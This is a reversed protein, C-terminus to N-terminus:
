LDHNGNTTNPPNMKGVSEGRNAKELSSQSRVLKSSKSVDPNQHEFSNSSKRGSDGAITELPLSVSSATITGENIKMSLSTRLPNSQDGDVVRLESNTTPTILSTSPLHEPTANVPTSVSASSSSQTSNWSHRTHPTQATQVKQSSPHEHITKLASPHCASSENRSSDISHSHQESHTMNQRMDVQFFKELRITYEHFLEINNHDGGEVWLPDLPNPLRAFLEKGHHVGIVHDDTGHIVLTPSQINEVKDISNFPDFCFRRTTGPCVVRLGSMLASHLVVGAVLHRTALDVTPATGISQGYLVIRNLPCHFREVLESLAAEADAYLNAELTQGTSAGYGSYDYVLVNVEFRQSLSFLFGAMQGIDVANGHSFLITLRDSCDDHSPSSLVHRSSTPAYRIYLCAIRSKRKTITYFAKMTSKAYERIPGVEPKFNIQCDSGDSSQVISYTPIPPLFAFKAVIHSPRPPCCFIHCIEGFLSGM